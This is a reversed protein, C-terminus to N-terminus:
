NVNELCMANIVKDIFKQLSGHKKVIHERVIRELRISCVERAHKGKLPRGIKKSM